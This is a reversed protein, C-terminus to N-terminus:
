DALNTVALDLIGDGNFDGVAVFFANFPGAPYTPATIFSARAVPLQLAVLTCCASVVVLWIMPNEWQLGSCRAIRCLKRGPRDFLSGSVVCTMISGIRSRCPAVEQPASSVIVLSAVSAANM